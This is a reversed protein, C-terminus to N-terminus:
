NIPVKEAKIADQEAYYAIAAQNSATVREYGGTKFDYGLDEVYFDPYRQAVYDKATQAALIRSIPNGMFANALYTGVLFVIPLLVSIIIRRKRGM